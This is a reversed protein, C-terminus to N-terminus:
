PKKYSQTARLQYYLNEAIGIGKGVSSTKALQEIYLDKWIKQAQSEKILGSEPVTAWMTKLLEQTFIAEFEQCAVKLDEDTYGQDNLSKATEPLSFVNIGSPLNNIQM